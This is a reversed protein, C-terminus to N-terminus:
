QVSAEADMKILSTPTMIPSGSSDCPSRFDAGGATPKSAKDLLRQRVAAPQGRLGPFATLVLAATGTVSPTAYSTACGNQPESGAGALLSTWQEGPAWLDIPTGYNSISCNENANIRQRLAGILMVNDGLAEKLGQMPYVRIDLGSLNLSNNGAAGIYLTKSLRINTSPDYWPLMRFAGLYNAKALNWTELPIEKTLEDNRLGCGLDAFESAFNHGLSVNVVDIRSNEVYKFADFYKVETVISLLNDPTVRMPVLSVKWITGAIGESPNPSDGIAGIIGAVKTGHKPGSLPDNPNNNNNAFNWGVFDDPYGNHDNDDNDRWPNSPALLDMADIAGMIVTSDVTLRSQLAM